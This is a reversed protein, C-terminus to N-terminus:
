LLIAPTANPCGPSSGPIGTRARSAPIDRATQKNRDAPDERKLAGHDGRRLLRLLQAVWSPVWKPLSNAGQPCKDLPRGTESGLDTEDCPVVVVSICCANAQGIAALDRSHRSWDARHADGCKREEEEASGAQKGMSVNLDM